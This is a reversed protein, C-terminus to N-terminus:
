ALVSCFKPLTSLGVSLVSASDSTGTVDAGQASYSHFLFFNM